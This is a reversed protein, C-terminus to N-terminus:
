SGAGTRRSAVLGAATAAAAIAVAPALDGLALREGGPASPDAFLVDYHGPGVGLLTVDAPSRQACRKGCGSVHVSLPALGLRRRTALVARADRPADTLGSPCGSSGACAVVTVAPDTPDTLLGARGLAALVGASDEPAVDGLVVGRWPTLRLTGGAHNQALSAVALATSADMRGLLPMAGVWRRRPGPQPGTGLPGAIPPACQAADRPGPAVVPRREPRELSAVAAAHLADPVEAAGLRRPPAGPVRIEFCTGESAVPVASVVADARRGGLHWRGGGDLVVGYKAALADLRPDADLCELLPAVFSTVDAVEGPDLGALPGALINRRLDGAPGASLGADALESALRGAAAPEVGRLQLNARNTIEIVGGASRRAAGAVAALQVATLRGAPLRIRALGGDLRGLLHAVSPCSTDPM